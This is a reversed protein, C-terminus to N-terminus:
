KEVCVSRTIEIIERKVDLYYYFFTTLSM